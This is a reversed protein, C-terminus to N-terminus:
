ASLSRTFSLLLVEDDYYQEKTWQQPGANYTVIQSCYFCLVCFHSVKKKKQNNNQSNSVISNWDHIAVVTHSEFRYARKVVDRDHATTM